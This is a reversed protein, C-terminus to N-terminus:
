SNKPTGLNLLEPQKMSTPEKSFGTELLYLKMKGDEGGVHFIENNFIEIYDRLPVNKRSIHGRLDGCNENYKLPQSTFLLSM